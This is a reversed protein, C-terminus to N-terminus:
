KKPQETSSQPTTMGGHMTGHGMEDDHGGMMSCGHDGKLEHCSKRMEAKCEAIPRSSKLCDAMKQHIAAMQQRAEPSPEPSTAKEPDGAFAASALAFGAILGLWSRTTKTM